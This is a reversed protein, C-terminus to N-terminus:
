ITIVIISDNAQGAELSDPLTEVFQRIEDRVRRYHTLAEDESKANEALKPPDDFRKHIQKGQGPFFPCLEGEQGCLTVVYDFHINKVEDLHTSQFGSIDVNVEAMVKVALPDLGRPQTGASYVEMVDKKLHRSWGEAM